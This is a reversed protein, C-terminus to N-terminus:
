IALRPGGESCSLKGRGRECVLFVKSLVKIQGKGEWSDLCGKEAAKVGRLIGAMPGGFSKGRSDGERYSVGYM